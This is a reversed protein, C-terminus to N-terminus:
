DFLEDVPFRWGPVAPEADATEGRRFVAPHEPDDARYVRILAERLVDVDWVVRTGAAFYDARKAAMEREAAPGHDGDDRVEAAFVPAGRPYSNWAPGTWWSADPCVARRHPLDIVYSVRSLFAKGTGSTREFALLSLAISGSARAPLGGSPGILVLQDQVIEAKGRIRRLDNLTAKRELPVVITEGPTGRWDGMRDQRLLAKATANMAREDKAIDTGTGVSL